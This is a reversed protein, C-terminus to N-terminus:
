RLTTIGANFKDNACVVVQRMEVSKFGALSIKLTYTDPRVVPFTYNGRADTTATMVSGQTNSTLALQVKAAAGGQADRVSGQVSASTTQAMLWTGSALLCAM